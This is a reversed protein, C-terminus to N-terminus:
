VRPQVPVGTIEVMADAIGPAVALTPARSTLAGIGFAENVAGGAEEVLLAGALADWSNLSTHWFADVKGEAVWALGLVAAGFRRFEAGRSLFNRMADVLDDAKRKTSFGLTVVADSMDEVDRVRIPRDNKTAGGGRRAAYLADHCPDLVVGIEARGRLWYAISIGFLPIGRVFNGTGDIPDVVWVGDREEAGGFEEGLFADEPFRGLLRQKLLQEVERDAASVYDQLGKKEVTLTDLSGFRDLALKGAEIAAAKAEQLRTDLEM